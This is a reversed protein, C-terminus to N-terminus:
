YWAIEIGSDCVRSGALELFVEDILVHTKPPVDLYLGYSDRQDLIQCSYLSFRLPVVHSM